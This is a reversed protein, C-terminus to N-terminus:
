RENLKLYIGCNNQIYSYDLVEEDLSWRAADDPIGLPVHGYRKQAYMQLSDNDLLVGLQRDGLGNVWWAVTGPKIHDVVQDNPTPTIHDDMTPTAPPTPTINDITQFTDSLLTSLDSSTDDIPQITNKIQNKLEEKTFIQFKGDATKRKERINPSVTVRLYRVESLLQSENLEELKSIDDVTIPGGHAKCEQLLKLARENKKVKKKKKEELAMQKMGEVKTLFEEGIRRIEKSEESSRALKWENRKEETSMDVWEDTSFLKNKKIMHMDSLKEISTSGGVKKLTDTVDGFQSECGSNTMPTFNMKREVELSVGSRFFEMMHLQHQVSSHISKAVDSTLRKIPNGDSIEEYMVTLMELKEVFFSKVGTWSRYQSKVNKFLDIGLVEKLPVMMLKILNPVSKLALKSGNQHYM